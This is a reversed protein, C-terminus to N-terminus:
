TAPLTAEHKQLFYEGEHQLSTSCGCKQLQSSMTEAAPQFARRLSSAISVCFPCFHLAHGSGEFKRDMFDHKCVHKTPCSGRLSQAHGGKPRWVAALQGKAELPSLPRTLQNGHPKSLCLCFTHRIHQGLPRALADVAITQVSLM